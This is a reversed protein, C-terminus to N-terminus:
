TLKLRKLPKQQLVMILVIYVTNILCQIQWGGGVQRVVGWNVVGVQLVGKVFREDFIIIIM